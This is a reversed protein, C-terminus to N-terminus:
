QVGGVDLSQLDFEYQRDPPPEQYPPPGIVSSVSGWLVGFAHIAHWIFRKPHAVMSILDYSFVYVIDLWFRSKDVIGAAASYRRMIFHRNRVEMRGKAFPAPRGGPVHNHVVHADGCWLLKWGGHRAVRLSIELDEGQSYGDFFASFRHKQLVERRFAMACGPLIDTPRTGSFPRALSLPLSTATPYYKGIEEGPILGLLLRMRVRVSIPKGIENVVAGSVAGVRAAGEGRFAMRIAEFYGEQPICDDDLFFVIERTSAEIGTNRQRTLGASAKIFVLDFNAPNVRAWTVIASETEEGPTGDVLIVEAPPHSLNVLSTLLQVIEGPRKFTAV